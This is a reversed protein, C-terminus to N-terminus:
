DQECIRTQGTRRGVLYLQVVLGLLPLASDCGERGGVSCGGNDSSGTTVEVGTTLPASEAGEEDVVVLPM